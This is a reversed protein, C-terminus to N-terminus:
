GLVRVTDPWGEFNGAAPRGDELTRLYPMAVPCPQGPHRTHWWAGLSNHLLFDVM